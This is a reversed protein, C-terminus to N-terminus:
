SIWQGSEHMLITEVGGAGVPFQVVALKCDVLHPRAHDIMAALSVYDSNFFPNTADFPPNKLHAQLIVLAPAILDLKESHNM